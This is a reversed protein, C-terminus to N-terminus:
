NKEIKVAAFGRPDTNNSELCTKKSMIIRSFILFIDLVAQFHAKQIHKLFNKVIAAASVAIYFTLM